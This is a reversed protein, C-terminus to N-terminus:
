KNLKHNLEDIVDRLSEIKNTNHTITEEQKEIIYQQKDIVEQQREIILLGSGFLLAVAVVFGIYMKMILKKNMDVNITKPNM